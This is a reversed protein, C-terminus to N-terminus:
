NVTDTESTEYRGFALLTRMREMTAYADTLESRLAAVEAAFDGRMKEAV